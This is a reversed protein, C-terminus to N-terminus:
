GGGDDVDAGSWRGTVGTAGIIISSNNILLNPPLLASAIKSATLVKIHVLIAFYQSGKKHFSRIFESSDSKM